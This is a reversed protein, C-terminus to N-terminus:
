TVTNLCSPCLTGNTWAPNPSLICGGYKSWSNFLIKCIGKQAGTFKNNELHRYTLHLVRPLPLPHPSCLFFCPHSLGSSHPTISFSLPCFDIPPFTPPHFATCHQISLARARAHTRAVLHFFSSRRYRTAIASTLLACSTSTRSCALKTLFPGDLSNSDM